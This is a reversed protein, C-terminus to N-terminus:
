ESRLSKVPNSLAAKVSQFSVTLFAIGIALLGALAFIWWQIQIHYEFNQLWNNAAWWALPSAIVLSVVVLTLFEKSLLGVIGAVSAGLVKRIGIEKTRREAAFAALGFLGLCCIFIALLSFILSLKGVTTESRFLRDYEADLFKYDFPFGPNHKKVIEGVSALAQTVDQGPKFKVFLVGSTPRTCYILLPEIEEYMSGFRFDELVGVIRLSRSDDGEGETITEGILDAKKSDRRILQAFTENIIVSTSDLDPNDHFDRGASLKMGLTRIYEPSAWEMTILKDVEPNKGKWTYGGSSSGMELVRSNSKAVNEVAGTALLEQKILPFKDTIQSTTGVYVVNNKDFGLHRNKVHSIQQYVVITCFILFVSVCFQAVVLSKRVSTAAGSVGQGRLPTLGKLVALPRFSSLYFSPYSGALLGSALTVALLGGLHRPNAFNLALQKDVLANFGPLVIQLIAVALLTALLSTLLAEGLFQGVLSRRGAGVVKRVGVERSRNESRATSLNMYNFCAILLIFGAIISFLRVYEIRGKGTQKGEKIESRLHWDALSLLWPKASADPEKKQIFDKLKGNVAASDTAANLVVFTQM